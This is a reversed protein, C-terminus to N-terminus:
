PLSVNIVDEQSGSPLIPLTQQFNGGLVVTKGAFPQLDNDYVDRLMCDLAEHTFWNQMPAEDWIILDISCLLKVCKDQKSINCLSEPLLNHILIHFTSHVTRSGSLLLGAIGNSAVCLVIKEKLDFVIVFLETSMHKVREEQEQSSSPVVSAKVSLTQSANIHLYSTLWKPWHVCRM